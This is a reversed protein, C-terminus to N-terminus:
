STTPWAEKQALVMAVDVFAIYQAESTNLHNM